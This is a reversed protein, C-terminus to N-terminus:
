RYDINRKQVIKVENLFLIFKENFRNQSLGAIDLGQVRM